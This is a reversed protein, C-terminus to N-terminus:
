HQLVLKLLLVVVAAGGGIAAVRLDQKRRWSEIKELRPILGETKYEDDGIVARKIAKIDDEIM